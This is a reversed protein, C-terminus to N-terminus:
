LANQSRILRSPMRPVKWTNGFGPELALGTSKEKTTEVGLGPRCSSTSFFAFGPEAQRAQLGASPSGRLDWPTRQLRGARRSSRFEERHRQQHDATQSSNSDLLSSRPCLKELPFNPVLRHPQPNAQNLVLNRWRPVLSLRCQIIGRGPCQGTSQPTNSGSSALLM